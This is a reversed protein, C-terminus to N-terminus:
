TEVHTEVNVFYIHIINTKSNLAGNQHNSQLSVLFSVVLKPGEHFGGGLLWKKMFGLPGGRM